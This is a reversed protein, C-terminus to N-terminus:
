TTNVKRFDIIDIPVAERFTSYKFNDIRIVLFLYDDFIYFCTWFQFLVM